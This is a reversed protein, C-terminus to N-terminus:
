KNTTNWTNKIGRLYMAGWWIALIIVSWQEAKYAMYIWPFESLFGCTYGYFHLRRSKFTMLWITTASLLLLLLQDWNVLLYDIM